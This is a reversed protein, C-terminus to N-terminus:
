ERYILVLDAVMVILPVLVVIESIGAILFEPPTVVLNPEADFVIVCVDSPELDIDMLPVNSIFAVREPM